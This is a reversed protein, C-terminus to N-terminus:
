VTWFNVKVIQLPSICPIYIIVTSPNGTKIMKEWAILDHGKTSLLPYLYEANDFPHLSFTNHHVEVYINQLLQYCIFYFQTFYFMFIIIIITPQLLLRLPEIGTFLLYPIHLQTTPYQDPHLFGM